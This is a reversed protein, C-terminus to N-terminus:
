TAGSGHSPRKNSANERSEAAIVELTFTGNSVAIVLEVFLMHARALARPLPHRLLSGNPLEVLGALTPAELTETIEASSLQSESSTFKAQISTTGTLKSFSAAIHTWLKGLLAPDTFGRPSVRATVAGANTSASMMTSATLVYPQGIGGTALAVPEPTGFSFTTFGDRPISYVLVQGGFSPATTGLALLYEGNADDGASTTGTLGPMNYLGSSLKANRIANVISAVELQIPRSIVTVGGNEDIACLGLNTLLFVTNKLRRISGPLICLCTTDLPYIGFDRATNGTLMYLGDEKFILLRDRTAVLGLIAKGADGVRAYNKPPVHEPEDPESWALGHPLVDNTSALGSGANGLPVAPSLEDGHSARIEFPAGGSLRREIVVTSDYGPNPPTIEYATYTGSLPSITVANSTTPYFGNNVAIDNRVKGLTIPNANNDITVADNFYFTQGTANANAAYSTTITTGAIATIRGLAATNPGVGNQIAMGVQLGTTNSVATMSTSGNSVNATATREGILTAQGTRIGAYNYSFTVRHPGVINGFFLSGRFRELCACGPPPDSANEMGGRSPSTYLTMGRASDLVRDTFQFTSMGPTLPITAVLQMEDDVQASTPFVRTRYVEAKMSTTTSTEYMTPAYAYVIPSVASGSTNTVTIAGTPRSRTIVGNIDTKVFVVRYAAQTNTALILNAGTTVVNLGPYVPADTSRVGTVSLATVVTNVLKLVGVSSAFYFNNRAEKASQIDERVAPTTGGLVAVSFPGAGAPGYLANGAAVFYLSSERFPFAARYQRSIPFAAFWPRPTLAGERRLVVNDAVRLGSPAGGAESTATVLGVFGAKADFSM